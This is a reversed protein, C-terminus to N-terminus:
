GKETWILQPFLHSFGFKVGSAVDKAAVGGSYGSVDATGFLYQQGHLAAACQRDRATGVFVIHLGFLVVFIDGMSWYGGRGVAIIHLGGVANVCRKAQDGEIRDGGLGADGSVDL